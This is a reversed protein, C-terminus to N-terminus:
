GAGTAASPWWPSRRTTSASRGSARSSSTSTPRTRPWCATRGRPPAPLAHAARRAAAAALRAGGPAAGAAPAEAARAARLAHRPDNLAAREPPSRSASPSSRRPRRRKGSLTLVEVGDATVVVTHEWQASLSHDRTVITWGDNMQKIDRRGANIMPEVTFVM